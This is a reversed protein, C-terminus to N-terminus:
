AALGRPIDQHFSGAARVSSFRAPTLGCWPQAGGSASRSDINLDVWWALVFGYVKQRTVALNDISYTM